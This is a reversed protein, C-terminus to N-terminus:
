AASAAWASPRSGSAATASSSGTCSMYVLPVSDRGLPAISVLRLRSACHTSCADDVALHAGVVDLDVRQREVVAGLQVAEEDGVDYSPAVFTM